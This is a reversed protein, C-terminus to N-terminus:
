FGTVRFLADGARDTVLLSTTDPDWALGFPTWPGWALVSTICANPASCEILYIRGSDPATVAIGEGASSPVLALDRLADFGGALLDTGDTDSWRRVDGSDDAVWLVGGDFAIGWPNELTGSFNRTTNSSTPLTSAAADYIRVNEATDREWDAVALSSGDLALGAPADVQDSVNFPTQRGLEDVVIVRDDGDDDPTIGQNSVFVQDRPEDFVIDHPDTLFGGATYTRTYLGSPETLTVADRGNQVVLLNGDGDVAIGEPDDWLNTGGTVFAVDFGDAMVVLLAPDSEVEVVALDDYVGDSVQVVMRYLGPEDAYFSPNVVHADNFAAASGPPKEVFWWTTDLGGPVLQSGPGGCGPELDPDFSAAASLAVTVEDEVTAEEFDSAPATSTPSLVEVLAEPPNSGCTDVPVELETWSSRGTDDTVTARIVYPADAPAPRDPVFGIATGAFPALVAASGAPASVIESYVSLTQGLDCDTQQADHNDIDDVSWTIQVFQGTFPDPDGGLFDPDSELFSIQPVHEGCASATVPLVASASRGTGDAVTARVQYDGSRDTTFGVTTGVPPAVTALSGAPAAAIASTVALVQELDCEGNDADDVAWTVGVSDGANTHLVGAAPATVVGNVRTELLAITPAAEGCDDVEVEIEATAERGTDDAVTGRVVFTGSVDAVFGVATGAPPAPAALSGAPAQVIESVVTLRQGLACDGPNGEHNDVDDVTWAIEVFDGAIPDRLASAATVPGVRAGAITPIHSGCEGVTVTLREVPSPRGTDDTVVLAVGYDGPRDAVFSPNTARPDNLAATSGSPLATLAWEWTVEQELGCTEVDTDTWTASLQVTEGTIPAAPDADLGTIEPPENGCGEISVVETVEDSWLIGNSVSLGVTYDGYEDAVFSVIPLDDANFAATSGAPASAMRWHYTLDLDAEPNPDSSGSGDLVIEVGPRLDRDTLVVLSATPAEIHEVCAATALAPILLLSTRALSM